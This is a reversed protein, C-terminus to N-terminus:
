VIIQKNGACDWGLLPYCSDLSGVVHRCHLQLIRPHPYRVILRQSLRDRDSYFIGTVAAMPPRDPTQIKLFYTYLLKPVEGGGDDDDDDDAADDDDDDDDDNRCYSM